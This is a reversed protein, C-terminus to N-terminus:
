RAPGIFLSACVPEPEHWTRFAPRPGGTVQSLPVRRTDRRQQVLSGDASRRRRAPGRDDGRERERGGVGIFATVPLLM